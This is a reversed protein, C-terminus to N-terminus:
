PRRGRQDSGRGGLRRARAGHGRRRDAAGRRRRADREATECRGCDPARPRRPRAHGDRRHHHWRLEDAIRGGRLLGRGIARIWKVRGDVPEVTRYQVDYPQREGISREIAQRTPERDDPHLRAYFLDITVLADPPLWFHNKVQPNWVLKDFPLDCYWVGLDTAATVLDLRSRAGRLDVEASQQDHIDTATGHWRAIGGASDRLALARVLHWRPAGPSAETMRCRVEFPEGTAVSRQWAMDVRALDDPHIATNWSAAPDTGPAVGVYAYWRENCYDVRGDPRASWVIQPMADALTRLRAESAALAEQGSSLAAALAEIRQRALVQTTIDLAVGIQGYIGGARDRLPHLSFSFYCLEPEAAGRKAIPIPYESAVFPEGTRYVADFVEYVGSERIEPFAARVTQGVLSVRGLMELYRPNTFEFVHEPGRFIAISAPAQM